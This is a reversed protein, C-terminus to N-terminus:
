LDVKEYYKAARRYILPMSAAYIVLAAALLPLQRVNGETSTDNLWLLAPFHPLAECLLIVLTVPIVAKLYSVGVKYGSRYFAPLFVANFVTYLLLGAAFLAANADLGVANGGLPNLRASLMAFPVAIVLSALEIIAMFVASVKVADRKRVPLLSMYFLDRQERQNMFTFFIGLTVYFFVVTYPYNPILLMVGFFCFVVAMPHCALCFQKYLLAKM